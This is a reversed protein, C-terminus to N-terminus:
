LSVQILSDGSKIVSREELKLEDEAFLWTGNTSSKEGDGDKIFWKDDIFDIRCQLRSLSTDNFMISCKETRGVMIPAQNTM